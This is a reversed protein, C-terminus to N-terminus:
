RRGLIREAKNINEKEQKETMKMNEKSIKKKTKSLVEKKWEPYSKEYVKHLWVQFLQEEQKEKKEELLEKGLFQVYEAFRIASM